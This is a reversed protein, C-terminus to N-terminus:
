SGEGSHTYGRSWRFIIPMDSREAAVREQLELGDLDPLTRDLILCSPAATKPFALFESASAFTETQWGANWVLLELSERVSADGDVIFIVPVPSHLMNSRAIRVLTWLVRRADDSHSHHIPCQIRPITLNHVIKALSNFNVLRVLM